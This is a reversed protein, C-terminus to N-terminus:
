FIDDLWGIIGGNENPKQIGKPTEGRVTGEQGNILVLYDQGEYPYSTAWIPLLLLKYSDVALNASSTKIKTLHTIRRSVEKKTKKYGQSRANLSADSLPIEYAEATWSSLYRADYPKAERLNYSGILRLIDRRHEHNAPIVLDDIFVPYDGRETKVVRKKKFGFGPEEESRQGSYGVTGGIDFTWVPAYFGRPPLVKGQPTFQHKQVWEVLLQTVQRQTFAHPIIADPDLLERTEELRVVHPSACYACSASLEDAMLVFEAGCGDCHFIKRAVPKSHGRLTAMASFFDQEETAESTSDINEGSSCFDCALTQGDPAFSMRGGCGPCTFRDANVSKDGMDPAPIADASIIEDQKIRGDLVALSRRARAHMMQYSLTQELSKRKEAKDETIESLYFWADALIDHDRATLFVRELYKKALSNEGSKVATVASYLLRRAREKSNM